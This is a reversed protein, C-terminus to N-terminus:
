ETGLMLVIPKLAKPPLHHARLPLVFHHLDDCAEDHYAIVAKQYWDRVADEKGDGGQPCTTPAPPPLLPLSLSFALKGVTIENSERFYKGEKRGNLKLHHTM